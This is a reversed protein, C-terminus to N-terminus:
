QESWRIGSPLGIVAAREAPDLSKQWVLLEQGEAATTYVAQIDGPLDAELISLGQWKGASILDVDSHQEVLKPASGLIVEVQGGARYITLPPVPEYRLSGLRYERERRYEKTDIRLELM